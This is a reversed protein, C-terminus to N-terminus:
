RQELFIFRAMIMPAVEPIPFSTALHRKDSPHCIPIAPLRWDSKIIEPLDCRLPYFNLRQIDSLFVTGSLQIRKNM